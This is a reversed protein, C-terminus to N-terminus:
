RGGGGFRKSEMLKNNLFMAVSSMVMLILAMVAAKPWNLTTSAQNVILSALTNVKGGGIVIPVVYASLIGTFVLLMGASIGPISLPLTITLFIKVPNAGLTNAAQEVNEDISAIGNMISTIMYPLQGSLLVIYVGTRTYLLQVPEDIMHLGILVSNIIGTNGLMIYWGFCTVVSSALMPVMVLSSALKMKFGKYRVIYFAIPYSVLIALISIIVAMIFSAIFTEIYYKNTFFNIYNETTLTHEVRGYGKNVFFSYSILLAMPIVFFIIMYMINPLLPMKGALDKKLIRKKM